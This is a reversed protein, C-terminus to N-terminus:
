SNYIEPDTPYYLTKPHNCIQRKNRLFFFFGDDPSCIACPSGQSRLRDKTTLLRPSVALVGARRAM